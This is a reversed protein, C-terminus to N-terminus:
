ATAGIMLGLRELEDTDWIHRRGHDDVCSPRTCHVHGTVPHQRLSASDCYPCRAKVWKRNWAQRLWRCSDHGCRDDGCLVGVAFRLRQPARRYPDVVTVWPRSWAGRLGWCSPHPCPNKDCVVGPPLEAPVKTRTAQGLDYWAPNDMNRWERVAPWPQEHGTLLLAARHWQRVRHEIERAVERGDGDLDEYGLGPPQNESYGLDSACILERRDHLADVLHPLDLLARVAGAAGDLTADYYRVRRQSGRSILYPVELPGFGLCARALQNLRLAGRRVQDVLEAPQQSWPAPSGARAGPPTRVKVERPPPAGPDILMAVRQLLPMGAIDAHWCGGVPGSVVPWSYGLAVDYGRSTMVAAGGVTVPVVARVHSCRHEAPRDREDTYESVLEACVEEFTRRRRPDAPVRTSTM